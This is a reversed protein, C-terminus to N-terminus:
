RDSVPFVPRRTMGLLSILFSVLVSQTGLAALTAGAVSWRFASDPADGPLVHPWFLLALGAVTTVAGIILGRELNLIRFLRSFRADDPLLGEVIAFVKAFVGFVIAQYGVIMALSAQVAARAAPRTSVFPLDIVASSLVLAGLVFLTLGPVVFVWRPAVTLFFRLTRWGDRFSRLHPRNLKRGDPHLTIPIEAIRGGYLSSRIIMETAFEMGVCRQDLRQYFTKTFGRMGCYVDHVPARFWWRALMSFMPNGWWRHLFPMAGPMVTGGGSPLRCGQVLDYGERLKDVFRPVELFDYSDDADAMLVYRGRAAAIGAMLAHGYGKQPVHEVRAGHARAIEISGDESGNDAVIVEGDIRAEALARACKQLCTALTEAENLCPIVISLEPQPSASQLAGPEDPPRRYEGTPM